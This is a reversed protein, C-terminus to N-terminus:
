GSLVVNAIAQVDLVNVRDDQNFDAWQAIDPDDELGLFVNVCLQVDLVNVRGDNNLDGAPRPGPTPSPGATNTATPTLTAIPTASPTLTPTASATLTPTASATPAPTPTSTSTPGPLTATPTSTAPVPTATPTPSPTSTATGTASATPSPTASATGTTSPTSTPTTSATPSSTATASPTATPSATQTGNPTPTVSPSATATPTFTSTPTPTPPPVYWVTDDTWEPGNTVGGYKRVGQSPGVGSSDNIVNGFGENLRWLGVTDVDTAFPQTPRAFDSTYRIVRSLRIEDLWGSFSPYTFRDIDHKEAGIVLYPDDSHSTSRGNRYSIDGTPGQGEGDLEGDVFIRMTGNLSRTIAVHHWTSDALNAVGCLTNREAGRSVGFAIRGGALSVGYDGYDGDGFVDRDFMQNGYVWNDGGPTCATSTNQGPNAKMWWELTFDAAGVDAPVAPDIKIKVRDIDAYGNGYFRLSFGGPPNWVPSLAGNDYFHLLIEDWTHLDYAMDRSEFQGMCSGELDAARCQSYYARYFTRLLDAGRTLRWNWIYDVSQNTSAYSVAPNYVQDCTSDYVDADPWKGGVAIYSWAYMKVAMAGARLSEWPWTNVWENPLVHKAYEKFDIVEVTYPRTIDCHPYGTVRVRITAPLPADATAAPGAGQALLASAPAPAPWDPSMARPPPVVITVPEEGLEADLYLVDGAVLRVDRITWRGYGPAEIMFTSPLSPEALPIGSFTFKGAADTTVVLDLAPARVWAGPIPQGTSADVVSGRVDAGPAASAVAYVLAAAALISLLSGASGLRRGPARASGPGVRRPVFPPIM